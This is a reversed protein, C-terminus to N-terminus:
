KGAKEIAEKVANQGNRYLTEESDFMPDPVPYFEFGSGTTSPQEIYFKVTDKDINGSDDVRAVVKYTAYSTPEPKGIYGSLESKWDDIVDNAADLQADTLTSRVSELYDLMGKVFPMDELKEAKLTATINADLIASAVGDKVTFSDARPDLTLHIGIDKYYPSYNAVLAERLANSLQALIVKDVDLSNELEEKFHQSADADFEFVEADMNWRYAEVDINSIAGSDDRDVQYQYVYFNLPSANYVSLRVEHKVSAGEAFVHPGVAGDEDKFNALALKDDQGICLTYYDVYAGGTGMYVLAIEEESGDILPWTAVIFPESQSGAEPLVSQLMKTLEETDYFAYKNSLVNDILFKGTSSDKKVFFVAPVTATVEVGNQGGSAVWVVYGQVKIRDSDVKEMSDVEIRDPWPSSTTRGMALSPDLVWKSLLNSTLYPTYHEKIQEAVVNEPDIITVNTLERGFNDLLETIQAKEEATLEAATSGGCAVLAGIVIVAVVVLCLAVIGGRKGGGDFINGLREKMTKVGGYFYTSFVTERERGKHIASLITESYQKRFETGTGEVLESDCAMEIDANSRYRMVYVLPNFWHVANAVVMVLKNWIDKHKYHILEHKMILELDAESYEVYPLLFIPKVFGTIMPSQVKKSRILEINGKTGMEQKMQSFTALTQKDEVIESFRMASKRFVIYGAFYYTMFLIAGILWIVPLLDALTITRVASSNPTVVPTPQTPIINTQESLNTNAPLPIPIQVNQSVSPITVPAEGAISPSFPILLRVAIILWVLYRWKASYSRNILPLLLLLVGIVISTSMSVQLVKQFLTELM